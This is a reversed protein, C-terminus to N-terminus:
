GTSGLLLSVAATVAAAIGGVPPQSGSGASAPPTPAPPSGSAGPVPSASAAAVSSAPSPSTEAGSSALHAILALAPFPPPGYRKPWLLAPATTVAHRHAKRATRHARAATTSAATASATAHHTATTRKTAKSSAHRTPKAKAKAKAKPSPSPKPTPAHHHKPTSASGAPERFVESVWVVGNKVVVGVGIQTFDSDLINARHPPSHMFANHISQVDPGYGVNEGVKQWNKVESALNPNHFLQGKDAMRQAQRQAISALDGASALAHVGNASRAGNTLSVFQGPSAGARVGAAPALAGIVVAAGVVAALAGAWRKPRRRRGGDSRTRVPVDLTTDPVAM